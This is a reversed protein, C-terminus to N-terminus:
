KKKNIDIIVYESQTGIRFKGGWIGIGSSVYINTNGKKKFGHDIEYISKTIMSIPWVQGQHTHGSIQLDVCNLEAEELNYPQHDLVIIPKSEDLNSVLESLSKRNQNSRDERGVVYFRGDVEAVSDRLLHVGAKEIFQVSEKVGSLFEHNGLCAYIGMPAKINKFSDAFDGVNLPRVSNDIIDGAILVIDPNEKNIKEIWVDLENRNIGYGLHLDSIAVIRLPQFRTSDGVTKEIEIPVEVRVKWRYKLYGCVMLLAIFGIMFALGVWNDRTYRSLADAPMFHLYRNALVFLDRVFVVIFFYILIFLWSTGIKYFFSSLGIPMVNDLLYFIVLSLISISAFSILIIRGILNPPMTVWVRYFVYFNAGLYLLFIIIFLIPKM